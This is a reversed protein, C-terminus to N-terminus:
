NDMEKSSIPIFAKIIPIFPITFLISLLLKSIFCYFILSSENQLLLLNFM